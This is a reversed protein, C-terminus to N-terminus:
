DLLQLKVWRLNMTEILNGRDTQSYPFDLLLDKIKDIKKNNLYKSIKSGVGKISNISEFLNIKNEINEM